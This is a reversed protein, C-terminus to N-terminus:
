RTLLSFLYAGISGFFALAVASVVKIAGAIREENNRVREALGPQGNEGRLLVSLKELKVELEILRAKVQAAQANQFEVTRTLSEVQKWLASFDYRVPELESM